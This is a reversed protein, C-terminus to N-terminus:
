WGTVFPKPMWGLVEWGVDIRPRRFRLPPLSKFVIKCVSVSCCCLIAAIFAEFLSVRTAPPGKRNPDTSLTPLLLRRFTNPLAEEDDCGCCTDGRLRIKRSSSFTDMSSPLVIFRDRGFDDAVLPLPDDDEDEEEDATVAVTAGTITVAVVAVSAALPLTLM